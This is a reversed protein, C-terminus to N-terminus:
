SPVFPTWGGSNTVCGGAGARHGPARRGAADAADEDLRGVNNSGDWVREYGAFIREAIPLIEDMLANAAASTLCPITYRRVMGHWVAMPVANGIDCNWDCMLTEAELDLELYCDQRESQGPYKHYLEAPDSEDCRIIEM